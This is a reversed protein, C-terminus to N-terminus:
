FISTLTNFFWQDILQVASQYRTNGQDEILGKHHNISNVRLEPCCQAVGFGKSTAIILYTNILMFYIIQTAMTVKMM